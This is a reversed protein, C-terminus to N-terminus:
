GPGDAQRLGVDPGDNPALGGAIHFKPGVYGNRDLFISKGEEISQAEVGIDFFLIQLSM